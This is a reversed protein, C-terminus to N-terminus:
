FDMLSDLFSSYSGLSHLAQLVNITEFYAFALAFPAFVKSNHAFERVHGYALCKKIWSIPTLVHVFDLFPM